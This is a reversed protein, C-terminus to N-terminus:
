TQGDDWDYGEEDELWLEKEDDDEIINLDQLADTLRESMKKRKFAFNPDTPSVTPKIPPKWCYMDKFEAVKAEYDISIGTKVRNEANKVTKTKWEALTLSSKHKENALDAGELKKSKKALYDEWIMGRYSM